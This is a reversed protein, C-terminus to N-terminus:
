NMEYALVVLVTVRSGHVGTSEFEDDDDDDFDVVVKWNGAPM